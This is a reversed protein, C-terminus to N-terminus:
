NRYLCLFFVYLFKDGGRRRRERDKRDLKVETKPVERENKGGEKKRNKM